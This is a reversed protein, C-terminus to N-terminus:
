LAMVVTFPLIQFPKPSVSFKVFDVKKRLEFLTFYEFIIKHCTSKLKKLHQMNPTNKELSFASTDVLWLIVPLSPIYRRFFIFVYIFLHIQDVSPAGHKDGKILYDCRILVVCFIEVLEKYKKVLEKYKKYMNWCNM